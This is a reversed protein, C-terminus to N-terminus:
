FHGRYVLLPPTIQSRLSPIQVSPGGRGVGQIPPILLPPCTHVNNDHPCTHMNLFLSSFDEPDLFQKNYDLSDLTEIREYSDVSVLKAIWLLSFGEMLGVICNVCFANIVRLFLEEVGSYNELKARELSAEDFLAAGVGVGEEEDEAEGLDLLSRPCEESDGM